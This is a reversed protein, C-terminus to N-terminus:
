EDNDGVELSEDSEMFVDDAQLKPVIYVRWPLHDHVVDGINTRMKFQLNVTASSKPSIQAFSWRVVPWTGSVSSTIYDYYKYNGSAAVFDAYPIPVAILDIDYAPADGNNIVAIRETVIEGPSVGKSMNVNVKLRSEAQTLAIHEINIALTHPSITDNLAGTLIGDMPFDSLGTLMIVGSASQKAYAWGPGTGNSVYSLSLYGEGNYPNASDDIRLHTLMSNIPLNVYGTMTGAVNEQVLKLHTNPYDQMSNMTSNGSLYINGTNAETGMKNYTWVGSFNNYVGSGPSTESIYGDFTGSIDGTTAGKLYVKGSAPTYFSMAKLTGSFIEGSGNFNATWSARAFGKGAFSGTHVSVLTFSSFDMTGWIPRTSVVNTVFIDEARLTESLDHSTSFAATSQLLASYPSPTGSTIALANPLIASQGAANAIVVNWVGEAVGAVPLTCTLQMPTLVIVNAATIAPQGPKTLKVTMGATLRTGTIGFQDFNATNSVSDTSVSIITPAVSSAAYAECSALPGGAEGGVALVKGDPLLTATHYARFLALPTTYHWTGSAANYIEASDVLYGYLNAGSASLVNGDPLLTATHYRRAQAPSGTTSWLGFDADYLEASNGGGFALVKGNQLLTLTYNSRQQSMSGVSTWTNEAPDYTEATSLALGSSGIGGAVLVKGNPLLTDAHCFREQAMPKAVTWIGFAPDYIEVEALIAGGAVLVRGDSLLTATHSYRSQALPGTDSWAGSVPDYIEASDLANGDNDIGGSVLVKGSTLLVARHYYRTHSMSGTTGWSGAVHDYIEASSLIGSNGMGGAVLVKGNPLLTATHGEREQTVSAAPLWVGGITFASTASASLGNPNTVVVDWAGDAAGDVSLTCVIVSDALVSVNSAPIDTQGIRALKVMTGLEFKSGEIYVDVDANNPAANPTVSTVAPLITFANPLTASQGDPNTVTVNWWGSAANSIDLTCAIQRQSIVQVDTAVVDPEGAMTLKVTAGSVFGIGHLNTIRVSNGFANNPTINGVILARPGYPEFIESSSMPTGDSDYGGAVLVKGDPLFASIHNIRPQSMPATIRWSNAGTDYVEANHSADQGGAVLVNGTPLMMATANSANIPDINIATWSNTTPSYIESPGEGGAVLVNGNPLLEAVHNAHVDSMYGGFTWAGTDPNFIESSSQWYGWANAGGAVLVRGDALETATHWYRGETQGADIWRDAVPDYEEAISAPMNGDYAAYGGAVLIKGNNLPTATHGFRQRLMEMTLTWLRTWPNYIEASSTAHGYEDLGGSVLVKGDPLVTAAPSQRAQSMPNTDEWNGTSPDYIEASPSVNGDADMGGTVLIKGDSLQAVAHGIRTHSMSGTSSWNDRTLTFGQSLTSSQGDPNTVVVDWVGDTAGTVDLTCTLLSDNIVTVMSAIIDPQGTKALKVSIGEMFNSGELDTIDVTAAKLSAINPYVYYIEPPTQAIAHGSAFVVFVSFLVSFAAIKRKMSVEEYFLLVWNIKEANGDQM